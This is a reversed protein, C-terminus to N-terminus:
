SVIRHPKGFDIEGFDAIPENAQLAFYIFTLLKRAAATRAKRYGKRGKIRDYFARLTKNHVMVRNVSMILTARTARDGKRTISGSKFRGIKNSSAPKGDSLRTRPVIGFYSCLSKSSPFDNVDDITSLLYAITILGFGPISKLVSYGKMQLSTTEIKKDLELIDAKAANMQSCYKQWAFQDGFDFDSDCISEYCIKSRMKRKEIHIGNRSLLAYMQNMMRVRHFVLLDRVVLLSRLQHAAESRFRATPLLGKALGYALTRADNKDTKKISESVMRNNAVDVLVVRHVSGRICKVFDRSLGFYEVAVEDLCTLTQKFEEIGEPSNPFERFMEDTESMRYCVTFQAKRLDIGVSAM